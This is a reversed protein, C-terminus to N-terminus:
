SPSPKNSTTKLAANEKRLRENEEELRTIEAELEQRSRKRQKGTSSSATSPARTFTGGPMQAISVARDTAEFNDSPKTTTKNILEPKKQYILARAKLAVHSNPNVALAKNLHKLAKEENQRDRYYKGLYKSHKHLIDARMFIAASNNPNIKVVEDLCELANKYDKENFYTQSRALLTEESEGELPTHTKRPILPGYGYVLYFCMSQFLNGTQGKPINDENYFYFARSGDSTLADRFDTFIPDGQKTIGNYLQGDIYFIQDPSACFAVVHGPGRPISRTIPRAFAIDGIIIRGERKAQEMLLHNLKSPDDVRHRYITNGTLNIVPAEKGTETDVIYHSPFPLQAYLGISTPLPSSSTVFSAKARKKGSQTKISVNERHITTTTVSISDDTSVIKETIEKNTLIAKLSELAYDTLYGCNLSANNGERAHIMIIRMRAKVEEFDIETVPETKIKPTRPDM